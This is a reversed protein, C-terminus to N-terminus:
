AEAAAKAAAIQAKLADQQEQTLYKVADELVPLNAAKRRDVMQNFYRKGLHEVMRDAFAQVTEPVFAEREAEPKQAQAQEHAKQQAENSIACADEFGAMAQANLENLSVTNM